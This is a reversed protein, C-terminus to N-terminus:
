CHWSRTSILLSRLRLSQKLLCGNVTLMKQMQNTFLKTLIMQEGADKQVSVVSTSKNIETKVNVNLVDKSAKEIAAEPSQGSDILGNAINLVKSKQVLSLDSVSAPLDAISTYKM